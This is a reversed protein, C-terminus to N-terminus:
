NSAPDEKTKSCFNIVTSAFLEPGTLILLFLVLVLDNLRYDKSYCIFTLLFSTKILGCTSLFSISPLLFFDFIHCCVRLVFGIFFQPGSRSM